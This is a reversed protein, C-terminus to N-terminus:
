EEKMLQQKRYGAVERPIRGVEMLDDVALLELLVEMLAQPVKVVRPETDVELMVSVTDGQGAGAGERMHKNVMICHKGNGMPFLSSRFAFGNLTGKVPVRAKMGWTKEVSFPPILMAWAKGPGEGTLKVKFKQTASEAM